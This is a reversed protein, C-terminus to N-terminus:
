ARAANIQQLITQALEKSETTYCYISEPLKECNEQWVSIKQTTIAELHSKITKYDYSQLVPGLGYSEVVQGDASNSMSIIPVRYYCCEYFRNSRCVAQAWLWNEDSAGKETTPEPYCGWVLDVQQYLHPLDDPSRYAGLYEVNDLAILQEFEEHGEQLAGALTIKVSNANEKAYTALTVFSWPSRLVGFYGINLVDSSLNAPVTAVAKAGAESVISASVSVPAESSTGCSSSKRLPFDLKNEIVQWPTSSINNDAYYGTAFDEATVVLLKSANFTKQSLLKMCKGVLGPAVQIPRIDGVELFVPSRRFINALMALLALDLGFAYVASANRTQKRLMPVARAFVWLRKLYEGKNIKGLMVVECDPVRGRHYDRDFALAKAHIGETKVMDIRKSWRPQGIAPMLFCVTETSASDVLDQVDQPPHNQPSSSSINLNEM